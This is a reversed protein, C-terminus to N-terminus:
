IDGRLRDVLSKALRDVAKEESVQVYFFTFPNSAEGRNRGLIYGGDEGSTFTYGGFFYLFNNDVRDKPGGPAHYVGPFAGDPPNGFSRNGLFRRGNYVKFYESHEGLERAGTKLTIIAAVNGTKVQIVRVDISAVANTLPPGSPGDFSIRQRNSDLYHSARQFSDNFSIKSIEIILDTDIRKGIAAYDTMGSSMLSQLLARDRVIFGESVLRKEIRGYLADYNSNRSTDSQVISSAVNPIRLVVKPTTGQRVLDRLQPSVSGDVAEYAPTWVPSVDLVPEVPVTGCSTLLTVISFFSIKPLSIKM